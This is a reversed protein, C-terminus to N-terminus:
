GMIRRPKMQQHLARNAQLMPAMYVGLGGSLWQLMMPAEAMCAGHLSHGKFTGPFCTKQTAFAMTKKKKKALFM